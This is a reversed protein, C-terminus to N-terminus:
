EGEVPTMGTIAPQNDEDVPPPPEQERLSIKGFCEGDTKIILYILLAVGICIAIDAVNFTPWFSFSIFDVVAGFRFRDIMNGVTGGFLLGVTLQYPHTMKLIRPIFFIVALIIATGLIHFFAPYGSFLSFAGGKNTVYTLTLFSGIVPKVQAPQFGIMVLQKTLQDMFITLLATIIFLM